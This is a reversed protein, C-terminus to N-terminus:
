DLTQHWNCVSCVYEGSTIDFELVHLSINGRKGCSCANWHSTEDSYWNAEIIYHVEQGSVYGCYKCCINHFVSNLYKYSPYTHGTSFYDPNGYGMIYTNSRSIARMKVQDTCNGEITYIYESDVSYIIGVHEVEVGGESAFFIDGIQPVYENDRPYYREEYIYFNRMTTPSYTQPITAPMIDAQEACWAVFAACWGEGSTDGYKTVNGPSEVYGVENSAITILCSYSGEPVITMISAAGQLAIDPPVYSCSIFGTINEFYGDFGVCITGDELQGLQMTHVITETLYADDQYFLATETLIVEAYSDWCTVNNILIDSGLWDINASVIAERHASEDPVIGPNVNGITEAIGLLYAERQEFYDHVANRVSLENFNSSIIEDGTGPFLSTATAATSVSLLMLTVALLMAFVKRTLKTM